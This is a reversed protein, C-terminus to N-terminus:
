GVWEKACPSLGHQGWWSLDSDRGESGGCRRGIFLFLLTHCENARLHGDVCLRILLAYEDCEGDILREILIYQIHGNGHLEGYSIPLGDRAIPFNHVAYIGIEAVKIFRASSAFHAILCGNPIDITLRYHSIWQSVEIRNILFIYLDKLTFM